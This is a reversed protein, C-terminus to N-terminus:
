SIIDMCMRLWSCHRWPGCSCRGIQMMAIAVSMGRRHEQGVVVAVVVVMVVVVMVVVVDCILGFNRM